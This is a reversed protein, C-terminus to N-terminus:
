QPLWENDEDDFLFRAGTDMEYYVSGNPVNKKNRVSEPNSGDSSKGVYVNIYGSSILSEMRM